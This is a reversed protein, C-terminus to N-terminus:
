TPIGFYYSIVGSVMIQEKKRCKICMHATTKLFFRINWRFKWWLKSLEDKSMVSDYLLTNQMFSRALISFFPMCHWWFGYRTLREVKCICGTIELVIWINRKLKWWLTSVEMKLCWQTLFCHIEIHTIMSFHQFSSTCLWWFGQNTLRKVTWMHPTIEGGFIRYKM